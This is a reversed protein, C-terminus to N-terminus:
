APMRMREDVRHHVSHRDDLRARAAGADGDDVEHAYAARLALYARADLYGVGVLHPGVGREGVRQARILPGDLRDGAAGHPADLGFQAASALLVGESPEDGVRLPVHSLRVDRDDIAAADTRVERGAGHRVAVQVLHLRKLVPEHPEEDRALDELRRELVRDGAVARVRVYRPELEPVIVALADSMPDGLDPQRVSVPEVVSAAVGDRHAVKERRASRSSSTGRAALRPRPTSRGPRASETGRRAVAVPRPAPRRARAGPRPPLSGTLRRTKTFSRGTVTARPAVTRSATAASSPSSAPSSALPAAYAVSPTPRGTSAAAGIPSPPAIRRTTTVARCPGGRRELSSNRRQGLASSCTCRSPDNRGWVISSSARAWPTRSGASVGSPSASASWTFCALLRSSYRVLYSIVRDTM